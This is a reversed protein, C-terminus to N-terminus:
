AQSVPPRRLRLRLLAGVAAGVALVAVIGLAALVARLPWASSAAVEIGFVSALEAPKKAEGVTAEV